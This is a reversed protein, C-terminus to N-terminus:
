LGDWTAYGLLWFHAGILLAVVAIPIAWSYLSVLGDIWLTLKQLATLQPTAASRRM